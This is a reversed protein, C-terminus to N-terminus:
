RLSCSTGSYVLNLTTGYAVCTSSNTAIVNAISDAYPKYLAPVTPGYTCGCTKIVEKETKKCSSLIISSVIISYLVLKKM